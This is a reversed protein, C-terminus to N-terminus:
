NKVHISVVLLYFNTLSLSLLPAQPLERASRNSHVRPLEGPFIWERPYAPSRRERKQTGSTLEPKGEKM